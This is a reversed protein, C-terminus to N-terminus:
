QLATQQWNCYFGMWQLMVVTFIYCAPICSMYAVNIANRLLMSCTFKHQHFYLIGPAAKLFIFFADECTPDAPLSFLVKEKGCNYTSSSIITTTTKCNDHQTLRETHTLTRTLTHNIGELSFFSKVRFSSRM